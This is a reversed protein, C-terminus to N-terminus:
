FHVHSGTHKFTILIIHLFRKNSSHINFSYNFKTTNLSVQDGGLTKHKYMHRGM